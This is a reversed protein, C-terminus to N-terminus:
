DKINIWEKEITSVSYDKIGAWKNVHDRVSFAGRYETYFHLRNRKENIEKLQYIFIEDLGIISQYAKSLTTSFNITPLHNPLGEFILHESPGNIVNTIALFDNIKIPVGSKQLNYLTSNQSTKKLQHVLYGNRILMAKNYNEYAVCIKIYDILKEYYSANWYIETRENASLQKAYEDFYKFLYVSKITRYANGFLEVMLRTRKEGLNYADLEFLLEKKEM